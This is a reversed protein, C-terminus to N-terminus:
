APVRVGSVRTRRSAVVEAVPPRARAMAVAVGVPVVAVYLSLSDQFIPSAFGEFSAEILVLWAGFAVGSAVGTLRKMARRAFALMSGIGAVYVALGVVGLEGLVYPWHTDSIFNGTEPSLGYTSALGYEFYVPSYYLLSAYGGFSGLGTGLPLEDRAIEFSTRTLEVRAGAQLEPSKQAVIEYVVSSSMLAIALVAMLLLPVTRRRGRLFIFGVLLAAPVGILPRARLSLLMGAAFVLTLALTSPKRTAAYVGSFVLVLAAMVHGLDGPHDFFSSASRIGARYQINDNLGLADGVGGAVYNLICAAVVVLGAVGAWRVMSRTDRETWRIGVVALYLLFVKVMLFADLVVAPPAIGTRAAGAAGVVVIGGIVALVRRQALSTPRLLTLAAMVFIVVEDLNKVGQTLAGSGVAEAVGELVDQLLVFAGFLALTAAPRNWFAVGAVGVVLAAAVVVPAEVVAAATVLSAVLAGAAFRVTL